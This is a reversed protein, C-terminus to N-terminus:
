WHVRFGLAVTLGDLDIKGGQVVFIGDPGDVGANSAVFVNRDYCIDADGPVSGSNDFDGPRGGPPDTPDNHNCSVRRGPPDDGAPDCGKGVRLITGDARRVISDECLTNPAQGTGSGFFKTTGDERFMHESFIVLDVQDHSGVTINVSQDAFMYRADFVMSFRDNFFYEAGAGIHWELADEVNVNVPWQFPVTGAAREEAFGDPTIDNNWESRAGRIHAGALRQNLAAVEDDVDMEAFIIGGGFMLYPNLPSDKRFRIVGSLSIPIETIEGAQVPIVTEQLAAFGVAQSGINSGLFAQRVFADVPGVDGQFYSADFQLSLWSSLGYGATVELRFTEEITSERGLLDDPRPDCFPGATENLDQSTCGQDENPDGTFPIGDDGFNGVIINSNSRVDDMTSLFSINGGLYWKNKLDEARAPSALVLGALLGGTVLLSKRSVQLWDCVDMGGKRGSALDPM